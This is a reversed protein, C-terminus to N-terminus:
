EIYSVNEAALPSIKKKPKRGNDKPKMRKRTSGKAM